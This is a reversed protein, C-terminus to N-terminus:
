PNVPLGLAAQMKRVNNGIVEHNPLLALATQYVQLPPHPPPTPTSCPFPFQRVLFHPLGLPAPRSVVAM